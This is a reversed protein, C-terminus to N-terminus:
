MQPNLSLKILREIVHRVLDVARQLDPHGSSKSDFKTTENSHLTVDLSYPGLDENPITKDCAIFAITLFMILSLRATILKPANIRM